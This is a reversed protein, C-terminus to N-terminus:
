RERATVGSGLRALFAAYRAPHRYLRDGNGVGAVIQPDVPEQDGHQRQRARLDLPQDLLATKLTMTSAYAIVLGLLGGSLSLLVSETLFQQVLRGRGAGLALRVAVERERAVGRSLMM